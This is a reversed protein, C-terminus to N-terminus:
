APTLGRQDPVISVELFISQIWRGTTSSATRSRRGRAAELVQKTLVQPANIERIREMLATLM